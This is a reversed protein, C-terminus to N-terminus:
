TNDVSSRRLLDIDARAHSLGVEFGAIVRELKRIAAEDQEVTQDAEGAFKAGRTSIETPLRGRVLGSYAPTALLLCGYFVGLAVELRYLAAQELAIAPLDQPVPLVASATLAVCLAAGVLVRVLNRLGPM